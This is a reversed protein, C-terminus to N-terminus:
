EEQESANPAKSPPGGPLGGFLGGEGRNGVRQGALERDALRYTPVREARRPSRRILRRREPRWRTPRLRAWVRRRIWRRGDGARYGIGACYRGGACRGTGARRG